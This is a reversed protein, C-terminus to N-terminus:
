EDETQEIPVPKDDRHKSDPSSKKVVTRGRLTVTCLPPSAERKRLEPSSTQSSTSASAQRKLEHFRAMKTSSAQSRVAATATVASALDEGEDDTAINQVCCFGGGRSSVKPGTSTTSGHRRAGEGGWVAAWTGNESGM